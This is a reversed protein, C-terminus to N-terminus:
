LNEVSTIILGDGGANNVSLIFNIQQESAYGRQTKVERAVFQAITQGVMDGTIKIPKWGILDASGVALGFRIRQANQLLVHHTGKIPVPKGTWGVGINNRFLRWGLQSAKVQIKQMLSTEAKMM